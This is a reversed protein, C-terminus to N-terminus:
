DEWGRFRIKRGERDFTQKQFSELARIREEEENDDSDADGDEDEDEDEDYDDDDKPEPEVFQGPVSFEEEGEGSTDVEDDKEDEDIAIANDPEVSRFPTDPGWDAAAATDARGKGKWKPGRVDQTMAPTISSDYRGAHISSIRSGATSKRAKTPGSIESSLNSTSRKNLTLPPMEIDPDDPIIFGSSKWEPNQEMIRVKSSFTPQEDDGTDENGLQAGAEM